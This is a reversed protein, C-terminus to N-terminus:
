TTSSVLRQRADYLKDTVVGNSDISRLVQGHQNYRTFQTVHGAKVSDFRLRDIIGQATQAAQFAGFLTVSGIFM